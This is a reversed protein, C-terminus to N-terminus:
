AEPSIELNNIQNSNEAVEVPDFSESLLVFLPCQLVSLMFISIYM